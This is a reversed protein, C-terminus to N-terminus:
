TLHTQAYVARLPCAIAISALRLTTDAGVQGPAEPWREDAGRRLVEAKFRTSHAM